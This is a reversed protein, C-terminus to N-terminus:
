MLQCRDRKAQQGGAPRRLAQSLESKQIACTSPELARPGLPQLSSDGGRTRGSTRKLLSEESQASGLHRPFPPRYSSCSSGPVMFLSWLLPLTSPTSAARGGEGAGQGGGGQARRYSAEATHGAGARRQTSHSGPPLWGERLRPQARPLSSYAVLASSIRHYRGRRGEEGSVLM